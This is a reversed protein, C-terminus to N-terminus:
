KRKRIADLEAAYVKNLDAEPGRLVGAMRQCQGRLEDPELKLLSERYEQREQL